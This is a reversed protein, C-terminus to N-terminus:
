LEVSATENLCILVATCVSRTRDRTQDKNTKLQWLRPSNRKTLKETTGVLFAGRVGGKEDRAGVRSIMEQNQIQFDEKM